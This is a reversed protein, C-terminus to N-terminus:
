WDNSDDKTQKRKLGAREERRKKRLLNRSARREEKETRKREEMEERQLSVLARIDTELVILAAEIDRNSSVRLMTTAIERIGRAIARFFTAFAHRAVEAVEKDSQIASYLTYLLRIISTIINLILFPERANGKSKEISSVIDQAMEDSKKHLNNSSEEVKRGIFFKIM